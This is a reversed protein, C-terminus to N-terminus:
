PATRRAADADALHVEPLKEGGPGRDDRQLLKVGDIDIEIGSCSQRLDDRGSLRRAHRRRDPTRELRM